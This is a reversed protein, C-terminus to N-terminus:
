TKIMVSQLPELRPFMTLGFCKNLLLYRTVSAMRTELSLLATSNSEWEAITRAQDYTMKQEEQPIHQAKPFASAHVTKHRIKERAVLITELYENATDSDSVIEKVQQEIWARAPIDHHDITRSANPSNPCICDDKHTPPTGFMSEVVSFRTVLGWFRSDRVQRDILTIRTRKSSNLFGRVLIQNEESNTYQRYLDLYSLPTQYTNPFYVRGSIDGYDVAYGLQGASADTGSQVTDEEYAVLLVWDNFVFTHFAVWENLLKWNATPSEVALSDLFQYGYDFAVKVREHPCIKLEGVQIPKFPASQTLLFLRM